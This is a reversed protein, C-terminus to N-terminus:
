ADMCPNHHMLYLLIIFPHLLQHGMCIGLIPVNQKAMM